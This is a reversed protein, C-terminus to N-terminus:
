VALDNVALLAVLVSAIIGAIAMGLLITLAPTMIALLRETTRQVERDFVDAVNLLMEDLRGTEEGVRMLQTALRPFCGAQALPVSLGEGEKLRTTVESVADALVGNALTERSLALATPLPVGNTALTGLTRAFRATDTKAVLDRILPLRLLFRHWRLRVSPVAMARRFGVVGAVIVLGGVWWFDHVADGIGMVIRTSWPLAVGVDQFLPKFQPLVVTLVITLSLGAICVLIIPYVLASKVTERAAHSKALYDSLRLLTVDLAGGTEGARIMNVYLPPFGEGQAAIADALSAGGRVKELVAAFLTQARKSESLEVLMDLARDLPLGAKLLTALEQTATGLDRRSLRRQGLLDRRLWSGLDGAKIERAGIPLYGSDQLQAIVAAATTGDMEGSMVGGAENLAEYRFTAM